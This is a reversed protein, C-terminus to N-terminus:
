TTQRRRKLGQSYMPSPHASGGARAATPLLHEIPSGWDRHESATYRYEPPSVQMDKLRGRRWIANTTDDTWAKTDAPGHARGDKAHAQWCADSCYPSQVHQRNCGTCVLATCGETACGHYVDMPPPSTQPAPLSERERPGQARRPISARLATLVGAEFASVTIGARIREDAM